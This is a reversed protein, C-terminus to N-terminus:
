PKEGTARVCELLEAPDYPLRVFANAGFRGAEERLRETDREAPVLLAVPLPLRGRHREHLRRLVGPGDLVKLEYDLVLLDAREIRLLDLAQGGDFAARVEYAASRLLLNIQAMLAPDSVTLLVRRPMRAGSARLAREREAAEAAARGLV